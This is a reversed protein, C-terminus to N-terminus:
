LLTIYFQITSLTKAPANAMKLAITAGYSGDNSKKELRVKRSSVIAIESMVFFGNLIVLLFIIVVEFM